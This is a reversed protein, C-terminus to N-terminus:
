LEFGGCSSSSYYRIWRKRTNNYRRKRNIGQFGAVIVINEKSLEDNIRKADINEIIASQNINNTEIGAQWGTLSIAKYGKEILLIALKAMTIQEGVSLLADMERTDPNESLAHAEKLLVDTTKGQASVVVVIQCM